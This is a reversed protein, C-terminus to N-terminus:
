LTILDSFLCHFITATGMEKLQTEVNPIISNAMAIPIESFGKGSFGQQMQKFLIEFPQPVAITQFQWQQQISDYYTKEVFGFYFDGLASIFVRLDTRTGGLAEILEVDDDLLPHGLHLLVDYEFCNADNEDTWDVVACQKFIAEFWRKWGERFRTDSLVDKRKSILRHFEPSNQYASDQFRIGFPFFQKISALVQPEIPTM